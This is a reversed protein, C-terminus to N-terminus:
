FSILSIWFDEQRFRQKHHIRLQVTCDTRVGGSVLLGATLLQFQFQDQLHSVCTLCRSTYRRQLARHPPLGTGPDRRSDDQLLHVLGRHPYVPLSVSLGSPCVPCLSTECDGTFQNKTWDCSPHSLLLVLIIQILTHIFCRHHEHRIYLHDHQSSSTVVFLRETRRSFLM